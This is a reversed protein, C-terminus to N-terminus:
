ECKKLVIFLYMPIKTRWKIRSSKEQQEPTLIPKNGDKIFGNWVFVKGYHSLTKHRYIIKNEIGNIQGEWESLFFYNKIQVQIEDSKQFWKYEITPKFCPYLISIFAQGKMRFDNSQTKEIRESGLKM